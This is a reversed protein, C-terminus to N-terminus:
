YTSEVGSFVVSLNLCIQIHVITYVVFLRFLNNGHYQATDLIPTRPREEHLIHEQFTRLNQANKLRMNKYFLNKYIFFPHVGFVHNTAAKKFWM